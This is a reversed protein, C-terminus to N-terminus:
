YNDVDSKVFNVIFTLIVPVISLISILGPYNKVLFDMVEPMALLALIVTAVEYILTRLTKATTSDWSPKKM